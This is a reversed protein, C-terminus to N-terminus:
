LVHRAFPDVTFTRGNYSDLEDPGAVSEYQWRDEDAMCAACLDMRVLRGTSEDFYSSVPQNCYKCLLTQM